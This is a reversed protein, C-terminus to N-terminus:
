VIESNNKNLLEAMFSNRLKRLSSIKHNYNRILNNKYDYLGDMKLVIKEQIKKEPVKLIIEKISKLSVTPQTVGSVKEKLQSKATDSNLFYYLFKSNIKPIIM